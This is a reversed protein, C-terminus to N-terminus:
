TDDLGPPHALDLAAGDHGAVVDHAFGGLDHYRCCSLLISEELDPQTATCGQCSVLFEPTRSACWLTICVEFHTHTHTHAQASSHGMQHTLCHQPQELHQLSVCPQSRTAASLPQCLACLCPVHTHDFKTKKSTPPRPLTILSPIATQNVSLDDYTPGCDNAQV